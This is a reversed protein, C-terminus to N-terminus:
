NDAGTYACEFDNRCTSIWRSPPVSGPGAWNIRSRSISRRATFSVRARISRCLRSGKKGPGTELCRHGTQWNEDSGVYKEPRTSLYIDYETFGFTKLIHLNLDLINFIEEELQDPRCFIHADDQTFGRVRLLGHLAGAREYRYVTGLECWRMPFERYSRKAANYIGIHFPCNMPKLQYKVEDIDM